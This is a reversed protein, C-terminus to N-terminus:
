RKHGQRAFSSMTLEAVYLGGKRDYQLIPKIHELIANVVGPPVVVGKKNNFLIDHVGPGDEPGAMKSISHLPRAVDAVNWKCLVQGLDGSLISDCQGYNEIHEDSAGVFHREVKGDPAMDAALDDPGIVNDVAGTDAAVSVKVQAPATTLLQTNNEPAYDVVNLMMQDLLNTLGKPLQM